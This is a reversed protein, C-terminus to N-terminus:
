NKLVSNLEKISDNILDSKKENTLNNNLIQITAEIAANSIYNKISLNTERVFQDIKNETLM